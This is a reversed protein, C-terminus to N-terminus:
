GRGTLLSPVMKDYEEGRLPVHRGRRRGAYLDGGRVGVRDGGGWLNAFEAVKRGM